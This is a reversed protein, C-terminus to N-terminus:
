LNKLMDALYIGGGRDLIQALFLLLNITWHAKLTAFVRFDLLNGADDFIL